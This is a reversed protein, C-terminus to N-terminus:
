DFKIFGFMIGFLCVNLNVDEKLYLFYYIHHVTNQCM